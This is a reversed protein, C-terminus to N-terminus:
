LALTPLYIQEFKERYVRSLLHNHWLFIFDGEVAKCRQVLRHILARSEAINLHQYDFLSGDMVILPHEIIDTAQDNDLDYLPYPHCTGCRFGPMEAYGLTYDHQLKATQWIHLTNHYRLYHQRGEVVPQGVVQELREKEQCFKEPSQYSHYSGHLGIHMGSNLIREVSYRVIPDNISYTSDPEGLLQAKIFFHSNVHHELSHQILEDIAIIYPDFQRQHRCKKYAAWSKKAVDLRKDILLDRGIISRCAQALSHFRYLHDIDHTPVIQARRSQLVFEPALYEMVWHRLLMAYEDVIPIHICQYHYSLSHSYPFRQHSDRVLVHREEERSLWAFCPSVIDYPLYLSQEAPNYAKTACLNHKSTFFPVNVERDASTLLTPTLKGTLFTAYEESSLLTCQFHYREQITVSLQQGENQFAFAITEDTPFAVSLLHRLTYAIAHETLM